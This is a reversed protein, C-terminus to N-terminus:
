IELGWWRLKFMTTRSFCPWSHLNKLSYCQFKPARPSSICWGGPTQHIQISDVTEQIVSKGTFIMKVVKMYTQYTHYTHRICFNFKYLKSWTQGHEYSKRWVSGHIRFVVGIIQVDFALVAWGGPGGVCGTPARSATGPVTATWSQRGQCGTSPCLFVHADKLLTRIRIYTQRYWHM